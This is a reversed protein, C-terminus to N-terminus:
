KEQCRNVEAEVNKKYEKFINENMLTIFKHINKIRRKIRKRNRLKFYIKILYLLISMIAKIWIPILVLTWSWNIVGTEKFIILIIQILPLIIIRAENRKM